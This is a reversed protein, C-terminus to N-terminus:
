SETWEILVEDGNPWSSLYNAEDPWSLLAGVPLPITVEHLDIFGARMAGILGCIEDGVVPDLTITYSTEDTETASASQRAFVRVM